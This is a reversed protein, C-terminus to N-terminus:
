YLYIPLLLLKACHLNLLIKKLKSETQVKLKSLTNDILSDNTYNIVNSITQLFDKTYASHTYTNLKYIIRTRVIAYLKNFCIFVM